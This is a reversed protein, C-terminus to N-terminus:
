LGYYKTAIELLEDISTSIGILGRLAAANVSQVQDHGFFQRLDSAVIDPLSFSEETLTAVLRFM